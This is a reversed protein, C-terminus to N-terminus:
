GGWGLERRIRAVMEAQIRVKQTQGSRAAAIAADGTLAKFEGDVHRPGELVAGTRADRVTLDYQIDHTAPLSSFRTKETLAHFRTLKVDVVVPRSGKIGSVGRALAEEMIVRVQAFRDGYSDERWVLDKGPFYSNAESVEMRPDFSFNVKTVNYTAQVEPPQHMGKDRSAASILKTGGCSSLLLVTAIAVVTRYLAM